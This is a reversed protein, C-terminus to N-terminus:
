KNILALYQHLIVKVSFSRENNQEIPSLNSSLVKRIKKFLEDVNGVECLEGYKGYELIEAPGGPCDTSIVKTGCALAEVLVLGFGEWNSSLVFTDAAKMYPYPNNVFGPMLVCEQLSLNTVMLELAAREEGDGLILLRTNQDQQHVKAFVKLLLTYNKEKSLRGVSIINKHKTDLLSTDYADLALEKVKDVDVPNYIVLVKERVLWLHQTLIDATGHSVAVISDACRYTMASILVSLKAKYWKMVKLQATFNGHESVVVPVRRVFLRALAAVVNCRNLMSLFLMPEETRMYRVLSPVMSLAPFLRKTYAKPVIIRVADPVASLMDGEKKLLLLDVDYGQRLLEEALTLFVKEVGGGHMGPLFFTIKKNKSM